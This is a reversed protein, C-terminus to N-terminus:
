SRFMRAPLAEHRMAAIDVLVAGGGLDDLTAALAETAVAEITPALREVMEAGGIQGLPMLRQAAAVLSTLMAQLYVPVVDGAPLGMARAAQGVVVPLAAGRLGPVGTARAAAAFAAGQELTEARREGCIALAAALEAVDEGGHAAVLLIADQRGAGLRLVADLWDPLGAPGLGDAVAQELGHSWAFAGTPFAPSLWRTLRLLDTTRMTM